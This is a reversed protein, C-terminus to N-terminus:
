SVRRAASVEVLPRWFIYDGREAPILDPDFDSPVVPTRNVRGAGNELYAHPPMMAWGDSGLDPRVRIAEGVFVATVWGHDDDLHFIRLVKIPERNGPETGPELRRWFSM